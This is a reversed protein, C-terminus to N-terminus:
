QADHPNMQIQVASSGTWKGFFQNGTRSFDHTFSLMIIEEFIYKRSIRFRSWNQGHGLVLHNVCASIETQLFHPQCVTIRSHSKLQQGFVDGRNSHMVLEIM